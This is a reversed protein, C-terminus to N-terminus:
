VLCGRGARVLSYDSRRCQRGFGAVWALWTARLGGRIVIMLAAATGGNRMRFRLAGRAGLPERRHPAVHEFNQQGAMARKAGIFDDVTQLLLRTWRRDRDVARQFKQAVIAQNVADFAAVGKDGAHVIVTGVVKDNEQNAFAATGDALGWSGGGGLRQFGRRTRRPKRWATRQDLDGANAGM